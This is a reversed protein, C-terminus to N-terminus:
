RATAGQVHGHQLINIRQELQLLKQSLATVTHQLGKVSTKEEDLMARTKELENIVGRFNQQLWADDERGM